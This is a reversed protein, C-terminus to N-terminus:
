KDNPKTRKQKAKRCELEAQIAAVEDQRNEFAEDCDEDNPDTAALEGLRAGLAEPSMKTLDGSYYSNVIAVGGVRGCIPGRKGM